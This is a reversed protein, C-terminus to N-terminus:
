EQNLKTSIYLIFNKNMKRLLIEAVLFYLNHYFIKSISNVTRM